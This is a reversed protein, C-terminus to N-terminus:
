QQVRRIVLETGEKFPRSEDIEIVFGLKNWVEALKENLLELNETGHLRRRAKFTGFGGGGGFASFFEVGMKKIRRDANSGLIARQLGHIINWYLYPGIKHVYIKPHILRLRQFYGRRFAISLKRPLRWGWFWMDCAGGLYKAYYDNPMPLLIERLNKFSPLLAALDTVSSFNWDNYGLTLIKNTFGITRIMNYSDPGLHKLFELASLSDMSLIFPNKKYLCEQALAYISHCVQALAPTIKTIISFERRKIETRKLQYRISPGDDSHFSVEEDDSHFSAEEDDSHFLFEENDSHFLVEKNNSYYGKCTIQM